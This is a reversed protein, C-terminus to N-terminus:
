HIQKFGIQISCLSWKLQKASLQRNIPFIFVFLLIFYIYPRNLGLNNQQQQHHSHNLTDIKQQQRNFLPSQTNILSKRFLSSSGISPRSTSSLIHAAAGAGASEIGMESLLLRSRNMKISLNDSSEDDLTFNHNNSTNFFSDM